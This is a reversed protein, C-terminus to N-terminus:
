LREQYLWCNYLHTLRMNCIIIIICLTDPSGILLGSLGNKWFVNEFYKKQAINHGSFVSTKIFFFFFFYLKNNEIFEKSYQLKYYNPSYCNMLNLDYLLVRHYLNMNLTHIFETCPYWSFHQEVVVGRKL